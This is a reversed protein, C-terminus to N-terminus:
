HCIRKLEKPSFRVDFHNSSNSSKYSYVLDVNAKEIMDVLTLFDSDAQKLEDILTEKLIARFDSDKLDIFAEDSNVEIITYCYRFEHETAVIKEVTTFEDIKMPFGANASRAAIRLKRLNSDRVGDDNYSVNNSESRDEEIIQVDDDLLVSDDEVSYLDEAEEVSYLDDDEFSYDTPQSILAIVMIVAALVLFLQYLHRRHKWDWGETMQQWASVGDKKMNLLAWWIAIALLSYVSSSFGAGIFINIVINCVANIIFLYFGSKNWRLLLIAALVNSLTAVSLLGTVWGNFYDTTFLNFITLVANVTVVFWLWASICGHRQKQSEM